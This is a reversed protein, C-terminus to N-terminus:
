SNWYRNNQTNIYGQLHFWAEVSFFTLQLDIEGEIVPQLFWSCIHVRSAPDRQQLDQIVTTKYPRFKLLQTATRASSKSV